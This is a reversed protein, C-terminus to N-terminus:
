YKEFHGLITRISLITHRKCHYLEDLNFFSNRTKLITGNETKYKYRICSYLQNKQKTILYEIVFTTDKYVVCHSNTVIHRLVSRKSENHEEESSPLERYLLTAIQRNAKMQSKITEYTVLRDIKDMFDEEIEYVTPEEAFSVM